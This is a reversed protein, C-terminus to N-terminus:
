PEIERDINFYLNANEPNKERGIAELERWAQPHTEKAWAEIDERKSAGPVANYM